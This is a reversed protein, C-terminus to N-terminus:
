RIRHGSGTCTDVGRAEAAPPPWLYGVVLSGRAEAGGGATGLWEGLSHASRAAAEASSDVVVVAQNGQSLPAHMAVGTGSGGKIAVELGARELCRKIKAARRGTPTPPPAARAAASLAGLRRAAARSPTLYVRLFDVKHLVLRSRYTRLFASIENDRGRNATPDDIVASLDKVGVPDPVLKVGSVQARLEASAEGSVSGRRLVDGLQHELAAYDRPQIRAVEHVTGVAAVALPVALVAAAIRAAGRRQALAYLV